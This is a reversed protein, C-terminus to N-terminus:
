INQLSPSQLLKRDRAKKFDLSYTIDQLYPILAVALLLDGV